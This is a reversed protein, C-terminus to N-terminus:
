NKIFIKWLMLVVIIGFLSALIDLISIGMANISALQMFFGFFLGLVGPVFGLITTTNSSSDAIGDAHGATFSRDDFTDSNTDLISNGGVVAQISTVGGTFSRDDFTDSNSDIVPNDDVVDWITAYGDIMGQTHGLAWDHSDTGDFGFSTSGGEFMDLQGVDIGNEYGTLYTDAVTESLYWDDLIYFRFHSIQTVDLAVQCSSHLISFATPSVTIHLNSQNIDFKYVQLNFSDVLFMYQYDVNTSSIDFVLDKAFYSLIDLEELNYTFNIKENVQWLYLNTSTNFDTIDVSDATVTITVGDLGYLYTELPSVAKVSVFLFSTVLCMLGIVLIKLKKM